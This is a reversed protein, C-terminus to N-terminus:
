IHPALGSQWTRLSDLRDVVAQLVTAIDSEREIRLTNPKSCVPKGRAHGDNSGTSSHLQRQVEGGHHSSGIANQAARIISAKGAADIDHEYDPPTLPMTAVQSVVANAVKQAEEETVRETHKDDRASNRSQLEDGVNSKRGWM